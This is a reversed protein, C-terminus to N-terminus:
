TRRMVELLEMFYYIKNRKKDSSSLIQKQELTELYRKAQGVTVGLHDALVKSTLIPQKFLAEM